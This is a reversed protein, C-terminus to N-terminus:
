GATKFEAKKGTVDEYAAKNVSGTSSVLRIGCERAARHIAKTKEENVIAFDVLGTFGGRLAELMMWKACIYVLDPDLNGELPIWVRQWIQSPEGGIIAKGFGQGLHIHSDIFGPIVACEPLEIVEDEPHAKRYDSKNEISQIQGDAISIVSNRRPGEPSLLTAPALTYAPQTLADSLGTM